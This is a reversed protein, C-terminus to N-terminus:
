IRTKRPDINDYECHIYCDKIMYKLYNHYTREKWYICIYTYIYIYM